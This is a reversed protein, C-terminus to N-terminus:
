GLEKLKSTIQIPQFPVSQLTMSEVIWGIVVANGSAKSFTIGQALFNYNERL